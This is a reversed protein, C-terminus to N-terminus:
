KCIIKDMIPASLDKWEPNLNEILKIKKERLWGKIQKEKNRAIIENEVEEFYVLKDVNYRATFGMNIKNKHEYMRRFLNNTMGVYLVRTKSSMIYVYHSDM